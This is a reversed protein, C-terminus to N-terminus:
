AKFEIVKFLSTDICDSGVDKEITVEILPKASYPDRSTGINNRDVIAFGEKFNGFIVSKSDAEAKPMEEMIVIPYGLLSATKMDASLPPQWLYGHQPNKLKRVQAMASPAMVWASDRLNIPRMSSMVQLFLHEPNEDPLDGAKGTSFSQLRDARVDAHLPYALIGKPSNAGNSTLFAKNEAQAIRHVAKEILWQEINFLSDELVSPAVQVRQYLRHLPITVKSFKITDTVEDKKGEEGWTCEDAGTDVVMNYEHRSTTIVKSIERLPSATKLAIYIADSLLTPILFGGDEPNEKTLAKKEFLRLAAEDGKRVYELFARKHEMDKCSNAGFQGLAPRNALLNYKQLRGQTQDLFDNIRSLKEEVLTDPTQKQELVELREDNTQKFENFAQGLEDMAEKIINYTMIKGKKILNM